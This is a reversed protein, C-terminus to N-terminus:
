YAIDPRDILAYIQEQSIIRAHRDGLKFQVGYRTDIVAWDGVAPVKGGFKRAGDDGDQPGARVILGVCGTYADENDIGSGRAILLGGKTKMEGRQFAVWLYDTPCIAIQLHRGELATMVSERPDGDIQMEIAQRAMSVM